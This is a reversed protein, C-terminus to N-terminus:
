MFRSQCAHRICTEKRGVRILNCSPCRMFPRGKKSNRSPCQPCRMGDFLDRMRAPEGCQFCELWVAGRPVLEPEAGPGPTPPLPINTIFATNITAPPILGQTMPSPEAISQNGAETPNGPVFGTTLAKEVLKDYISSLTTPFFPAQGSAMKQIHEMLLKPNKETFNRHLFEIEMDM